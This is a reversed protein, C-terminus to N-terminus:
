AVWKWFVNDGPLIRVTDVQTAANHDADFLFNNVTVTDTVATVLAPSTANAGVRKHTSWYQAMARAMDDESMKMGHMAHDGMAMAETAHAPPALLLALSGALALLIVLLPLGVRMKM